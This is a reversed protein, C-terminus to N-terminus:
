IMQNKCFVKLDDTNKFKYLFKYIEFYKNDCISSSLKEKIELTM